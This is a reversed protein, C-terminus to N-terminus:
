KWGIRKGALYHFLEHAIILNDQIVRGPVFANQLPSILDNLLPKLRNEIVKAIIKYCFNCLSIPRLQTVSEPQPVKPILAILTQNWEPLLKGTRFFHKLADM